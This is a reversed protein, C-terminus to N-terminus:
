IHILSLWEELPFCGSIMGDTSVKGSSLLRFVEAQNIASSSSSGTLIIEKYHITNPDITIKSGVPMGAFIVVRGGKKVYDLSQEM